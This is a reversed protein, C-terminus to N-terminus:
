EYRLVNLVRERVAVNASLFTAVGGIVAATVVLALAIPQADRPVLVLEEVGFLSMAAVGLASLGIGLIGGLMSVVVNELLMIFLVRRSKLGVAKLIGIQRRRELTALAVTNAMIVAAAGLSLIGVLIPLASFQEIFRGIVGDIFAVNIPFFGAMSSIELLVEDMADPRVQVTDIQFQPRIDILVGGPIQMTGFTSAQFTQQEGSVLGVVEFEYERNSGDVTLRLTSGVEIGEAELHSRMRIVAVPQGRDELTLGRGAIVDDTAFHPNDTDRVTIDIWGTYGTDLQTSLEEVREFDGAESAQRLEDFLRQREGPTLRAAQIERGDIETFQGSYNMIRTRYEVGDLEALKNDLLQRAGTALFEPTGPIMAPSVIMVNGGFTQSLSFQLIERASAGYFTISSLAFMGTSIALLTVATRMRHARLNVLALRVDVSGFSPLRGVIWVLLWLLGTLVALLLLTVAVGVLGLTVHPPLPIGFIPPVNDPLPGIIQGAILGLSLVVFLLAGLSQLVGLAPIHTENPRLIVNPRVQVATLVPIVGFVGSVVVGLVLGFLIAEPYLRWAISQQIFMEGFRNALASLGVGVVAGAASGAIGLLLGETMFLV